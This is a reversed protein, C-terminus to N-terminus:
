FTGALSPPSDSPCAVMAAALLRFKYRDDESVNREPAHLKRGQTEHGDGICKTNQLVLVSTNANQSLM